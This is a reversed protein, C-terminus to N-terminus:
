SVLHIVAKKIKNNLYLSISGMLNRLRKGDFTKIQFIIASHFDYNFYFPIHNKDEKLASTMPIGLFTNKSLIKYVLVPRIFSKNKGDQESGINVGVSTWWIEGEHFFVDRDRKDLKKKASNWEDFDKKYEM